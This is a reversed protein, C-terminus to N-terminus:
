EDSLFMIERPIAQLEINLYYREIILMVMCLIFKGMGPKREILNCALSSVM